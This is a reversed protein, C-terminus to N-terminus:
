KDHAVIVLVPGDALAEFLTAEHSIVFAAETWGAVRLAAVADGVGLAPGRADLVVMDHGGLPSTQASINELVEVLERRSSVGYVESRRSLREAYAHRIVERASLVVV